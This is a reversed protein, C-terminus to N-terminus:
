HRIIKVMDLIPVVMSAMIFGVVCGMVALLAPEVIVTLKKLSYQLSLDYFDAIKNLMGDLDGSEEAVAIMRVTDAPFEGSVQLAESVSEGKEVAIRTQAVVRAIVESGVVSQVIDLSELIPVGSAVLTSLTRAFRSVVAKRHMNGLVPLKLKLSDWWWKGRATSMWLRVGLVLAASVSLISIWFHQIGTGLAYIVRTPFPLRVGAQIFIGAFEPVIFTVIYLIVAFGAFLLLGPYFLAGKVKQNMEEQRESFEAFRALIMGLKGSTEGVRVMSLFLPHFVRPRKALAQSLSDGGEIDGCLSKVISKLRRNELQSELTYLSAVIPIGSNILNALQANFIVLEIPSIRKVNSFLDQKFVPSFEAVSTAMYGMNKLRGTLEEKGGADMKGTVVKGASDRAKYSYTPM